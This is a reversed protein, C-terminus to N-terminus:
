LDMWSQPIFDSDIFEAVTSSVAGNQMSGAVWLFGAIEDHGIFDAKLKASKAWLSIHEGYDGFVL